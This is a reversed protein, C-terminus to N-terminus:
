IQMLITQIRLVKWSLQNKRGVIGGMEPVRLAIKLVAPPTGVPSLEEHALLAAVDEALFADLPVQALALDLLDLYALERAVYARNQASGPDLDPSWNKVLSRSDTLCVM